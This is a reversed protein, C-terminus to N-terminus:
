HLAGLLNTVIDGTVPQLSKAVQLGWYRYDTRRQKSHGLSQELKLKATAIDGAVIYWYAARLYALSYAERAVRAFEIPEFDRASLKMYDELESREIGTNRDLVKITINEIKHAQVNRVSQGPHLRYDGLATTIHYFKGLRSLRLWFDWDEYPILETVQKGVQKAAEQRFMPTVSPIFNRMLLDYFVYGSSGHHQRSAAKVRHGSMDIRNVSAYSLVVDPNAEMIDLQMSLKKPYWIDDSDVLCLYKGRAQEIGYSRAVARESNEQYYYKIRPDKATYQELISATNDTSGDDVFIIEYDHYDQALISDLTAPIFQARDYSPIIISIKPM